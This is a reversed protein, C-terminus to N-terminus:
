GPEPIHKPLHHRIDDTSHTTLNKDLEYCVLKGLSNSFESRLQGLFSPASVVLLKRLNNHARIQELYKTIRKAFDIAIQDKTDVHSQYAHGGSGAHGKDKGPLDSTIEQEHLRNEPNVLTEIEELPSSSSNVTFIRAQSSDAVLVFTSKM